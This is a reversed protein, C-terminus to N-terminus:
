ESTKCLIGKIFIALGSLFVVAHCLNRENDNTVLLWSQWGIYQKCHRSQGERFLLTRFEKNMKSNLVVMKNQQFCRIIAM